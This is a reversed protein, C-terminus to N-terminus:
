KMGIIHRLTALRKDAMNLNLHEQTKAFMAIRSNVILIIVMFALGVLGSTGVTILLV